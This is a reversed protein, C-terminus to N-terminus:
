GGMNGLTPKTAPTVTPAKTIGVSHWAVEIQATFANAIPVAAHIVSLIQEDSFRNAQPFIIKLTDIAYVLQEDNTVVKGTAKAQEAAMVAAQAAQILRTLMQADHYKWLVYIAAAGVVIYVILYIMEPTLSM